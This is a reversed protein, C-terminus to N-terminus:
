AKMPNEVKLSPFRSFDRDASWLRDVGHALCLAAIRADQTKPGTIKGQELCERLRQWHTTGESLLTLSPSEIWAQVQDIAGALPTPPDWIRPHTAIAVFEHICPWPIAWTTRGEALDRVCDLAPSHWPSDVRHAYVLLNTDVAIV